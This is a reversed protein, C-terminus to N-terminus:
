NRSRLPACPNAAKATFVVGPKGSTIGIDCIVGLNKATLEIANDYNLSAIWLPATTASRLLPVYYAVKSSDRIWSFQILERLIEVAAHHFTAADSRTALRFADVLAQEFGGFEPLSM